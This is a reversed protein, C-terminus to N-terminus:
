IVDISCSFIKPRCNFRTTKEAHLTAKFKRLLVITKSIVKKSTSLGINKKKFYNRNALM